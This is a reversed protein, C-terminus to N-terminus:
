NENRKYYPNFTTRIFETVSKELEENAEAMLKVFMEESMENQESLEKQKKDEDVSIRYAELGRLQHRLQRKCNKIGLQKDYNNKDVCSSSATIVHGNPLQMAVMTAKGFVTFEKFESQNMLKEINEPTVKEM